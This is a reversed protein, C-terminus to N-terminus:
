TKTKFWGPLEPVCGKACLKIYERSRKLFEDFSCQDPDRFYEALLADNYIKRIKYYEIQAPTRYSKLYQYILYLTDFHKGKDLRSYPLTLSPNFMYCKKKKSAPLEISLGAAALASKIDNIQEQTNVAVILNKKIWPDINRSLNRSDINSKDIYSFNSYQDRNEQLRALLTYSTSSRDETVADLVSKSDLGLVMVRKPKYKSVDKSRQIKTETYITQNQAYPDALTQTLHSILEFRDEESLAQVEQILTTNKM